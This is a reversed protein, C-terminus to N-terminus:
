YRRLAIERAKQLQIFGDHSGGVDPHARRAKRKYARNVDADTYPLRVGLLACAALLTPNGTFTPTKPQPIEAYFYEHVRSHYQRGDAELTPYRELGPKKPRPVRPFKFRISGAEAYIMKKTIATITFAIYEENWGLREHPLLNDTKWYRKAHFITDGVKFNRPM